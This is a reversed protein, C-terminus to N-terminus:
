FKAPILFYVRHGNQNTFEAGCEFNRENFLRHGNFTLSSGEILGPLIVKRESTLSPEQELRNLAESFCAAQANDVSNLRILSAYALTVAGLLVPLLLCMSILVFGKGNKARWNALRKRCNKKKM